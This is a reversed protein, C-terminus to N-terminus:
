HDLAARLGAGHEIFVSLPFNVEARTLRGVGVSQGRLGYPRLFRGGIEALPRVVVSVPQQGRLQEVIYYVFLVDNLALLYLFVGVACVRLIKCQVGLSRSVEVLETHLRAAPKAAIGFELANRKRNREVGIPAYKGGVNVFYGLYVFANHYSRYGVKRNFVTVPLVTEVGSM